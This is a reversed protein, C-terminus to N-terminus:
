ARSIPGGADRGDARLGAILVGVMRRADYRPNNGAGVCLSGVGRMLEYADVDPAIEGAASAAELLQACVPVLRDLFYAHLTQFAADDSQM